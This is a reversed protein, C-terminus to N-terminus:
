GRPIHWEMDGWMTQLYDIQSAHNDMHRGPITMFFGMPATMVPTQLVSTYVEDTIGDLASAVLATSKELEEAVKERTDLAAEKQKREAQMKEMDIGEWPNEGRIMSAFFYNSLAVHAAIAIASKATECPQYALKDEPVFSLTMLLRSKGMMLNQKCQDIAAQTAPSVAVTTSM